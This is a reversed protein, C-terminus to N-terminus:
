AFIASRDWAQQSQHMARLLEAHVQAAPQVLYPISVLVTDHKNIFLISLSCLTIFLIAVQKKTKRNVAIEAKACVLM